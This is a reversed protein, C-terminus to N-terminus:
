HEYPTGDGAPLFRQSRKKGEPWVVHGTGRRVLRVGHYEALYKVRAKPREREDIGLWKAATGLSISGSGRGAADSGKAAVFSQLSRLVRMRQERLTFHVLCRELYSLHRGECSGSRLGRLISAIDNCDACRYLWM